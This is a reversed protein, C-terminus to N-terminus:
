HELPPKLRTKKTRQDINIYKKVKTNKDYRKDREKRWYFPFSCPPTYSKFSDNIMMSKLLELNFLLDETLREERKDEIM